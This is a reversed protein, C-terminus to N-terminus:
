RELMNVNHMLIEAVYDGRYQANRQVAICQIKKWTLGNKNIVRCLKSLSVKWGTCEFAELTTERLYFHPNELVISLMAQTIESDVFFGSYERVKPDVNETWEFLTCTGQITALSINL